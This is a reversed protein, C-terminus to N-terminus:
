LNHWEWALAHVAVWLFRAAVGLAIMGILGIM